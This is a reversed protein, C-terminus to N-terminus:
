AHREQPGRTAAHIQRIAGVHYALHVVSGIVGNAEVPSMDRPSAMAALWNEVQARLDARLRQWEDPSVRGIRWSATWDATEFPQEGHAWRNMLSLGYSVHAVHAAISAGGHAGVSADEATLRDLSALLGADGANLVVGGTSAAGHALERLVVQLSSFFAPTAM